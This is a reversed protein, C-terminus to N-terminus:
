HEGGRGDEKRSAFYRKVYDHMDAKPTNWRWCGDADVVIDVFPDFGFRKLGRHRAGYKRDRLDGHWLHIIRGDISGVRGGMVSAFRKAWSRYHEEHRATMQVAAAGYEFQGLAASLIVRDGSGLVCADYLGLGDLSARRAAWALGATTGRRVPADSDWLDEPNVQGAAIKSGVSRPGASNRDWLSPDTVGQDLNCRERFLQVLSYSDLAVRSRESWDEATFIVDCDLWAVDTCELPLVGLAVNLLREKQWLVDRAVRQVLIEADGAGLEFRGDFSAEVTVLPVNLHARFVRYNALRGRFAMPNFYSTIAWLV